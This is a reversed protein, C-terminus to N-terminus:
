IIIKELMMRENNLSEQIRTYSIYRVDPRKIVISNHIGDSFERLTKGTLQYFEREDTISQLFYLYALTNMNCIDQTIEDSILVKCLESNRLIELYVEQVLDM